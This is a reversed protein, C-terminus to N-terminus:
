TKGKPNKRKKVVITEEQDNEPSIQSESSGQSQESESLESNVYESGSDQFPESEPESSEDDSNQNESETMNINCQEPEHIDISEKLSSTPVTFYTPLNERINTNEKNPRRGPSFNNSTSPQTETLNNLNLDRAVIISSSAELDSMLVNNQDQDECFDDQIKNKNQVSCFM